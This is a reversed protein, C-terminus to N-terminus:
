RNYSKQAQQFAIIFDRGDFRLDPIVVSSGGGAGGILSKLKDLPAIVEPNSSAGPYEGVLARTPGSVIGGDAFGFLKGIGGTLFGFIGKFGGTKGGLGAGAIVSGPLLVSLLAAAAAAAALKVILQGIAGAISKFINEGRLINTFAGEFASGLESITARYEDAKKKADEFMKGLQALSETGTLSVGFRALSDSINSKQMQDNVRREADKEIAPKVEVYVPIKPIDKFQTSIDQIAKQVQDQTLQLNLRDRDGILKSLLTDNDPVNLKRLDEVANQVADFQAKIRDSGRLLPDDAISKQKALLDEQIRKIAELRKEADTKGTHKDGGFFLTGAAKANEQADKLFTTQDKQYGLLAISLDSFTKKAKEAAREAAVLGFSVGGSRNNANAKQLDSLTKQTKIVDEQAKRLDVTTDYVKESAEAFKKEAATAAARKLLAQTVGDIATTLDTNAAKEASLNKFYDPYKDQLEKIAKVRSAYSQATDQAIGVLVKVRAIEDFGRKRESQEIDELADKYKQLSDKADDVAKKNSGFGRTWASLGVSAITIASTVISLAVGIGGPGTLATLFYKGVSVGAEKAAASMQRFANPLETINNQVAVFGFPLDQLVRSVGILATTAGRTDIKNVANGFQSASQAAGNFGIKINSLNTAAQTSLFKPAFRNFSAQMEQLAQEVEDISEPIKAFSVTISDVSTDVAARADAFSKEVNDSFVFFNNSTAALIQSIRSGSASIKEAAEQLSGGAVASEAAMTNAAETISKSIEATANETTTAAQNFSNSIDKAAQDVNGSLIAVAANISDAAAQIAAAAQKIAKIVEDSFTSFKAEASDTEAIVDISLQAGEAM